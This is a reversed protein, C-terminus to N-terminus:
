CMGSFIVCLRSYSPLGPCFAYKKTVRDWVGLLCEERSAVAVFPAQVFCNYGIVQEMARRGLSSEKCEVLLLPFLQSPDDPAKAFCVIDVRRKLSCSRAVIEKLSKEVAILGKPYGLEEVMKRLLAQRIREEGSAKVWLGRFPDFLGEAYNRQNESEKEPPQRLM